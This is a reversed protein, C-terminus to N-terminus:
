CCGAVSHLFGSPLVKSQPCRCVEACRKGVTLLYIIEGVLTVKRFQPWFSENFGQLIWALLAIGPIVKVEISM